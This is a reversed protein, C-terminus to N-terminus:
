FIGLSSIWKGEVRFFDQWSIKDVMQSVPQSNGFLSLIYASFFFSFLSCWLSYLTKKM